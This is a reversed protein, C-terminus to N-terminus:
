IVKSAIGAIQQHNHIFIKIAFAAITAPIFPILNAGYQALNAGLNGAHPDGHSKFLFWTGLTFFSQIVPSLIIGIAFSDLIFCFFYILTAFSLGIIMEAENIKKYESGM